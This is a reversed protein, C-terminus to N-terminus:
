VRDEVRLRGGADSGTRLDVIAEHRRRTVLLLALAAFAVLAVGILWVLALPARATDDADPEGSATAGGTAPLVETAKAYAFILTGTVPDGDDSILQYELTYLGPAQGAPWSVTVTSGNQVPQGLAIVHTLDSSLAARVTKVQPVEDFNLVIQTPGVDLHAGDSPNSSVLKTHASAPGAALFSLPVALAIALLAVIWRRVTRRGPASLHDTM